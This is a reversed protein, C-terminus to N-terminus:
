HSVKTKGKVVTDDVARKGALEQLLDSCSQFFEMGRLFLFAPCSGRRDEGGRVRRTLQLHKM